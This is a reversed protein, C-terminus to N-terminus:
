LVNRIAGEDVEELVVRDVPEGHAVHRLRERAAEWVEVCVLAGM